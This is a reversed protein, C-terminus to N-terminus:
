SSDYLVIVCMNPEQLQVSDISLVLIFYVRTTSVIGKNNLKMITSSKLTGPTTAELGNLLVSGSIGTPLCRFSQPAVLRFELSEREIQGGGNYVTLPWFDATPKRGVLTAIHNKVQSILPHNIEGSRPAACSERRGLLTATIPVRAAQGSIRARWM